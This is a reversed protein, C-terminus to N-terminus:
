TPTPNDMSEGPQLRMGNAFDWGSQSRKGAPIVQHLLLYGHGTRIVPGWPKLIGVITGPPGAISEWQQTLDPWQPAIPALSAPLHPWFDPGLPMTELLKLGSGRLSSHCNPILGRIQNHLDIASRSWDIAWETKKIPPAHTAGEPQPQPVISGDALGLLTPPLLDAAIAALREALTHANDLLAIPTDGRLLMPGTDMGEDMLMTVIGTHTDGAQLCRQIPAAGRYAPLISGHGNICGLRPMALIEVSLLQGYAVVVFADAQTARLRDLTEPDKKVRDPQWVPIGAAAAVQKVPSPIVESGRGRRRDPQTVVAVVDFDPHDILCQLSPVAFAPTGFFVLRM